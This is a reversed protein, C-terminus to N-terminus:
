GGVAGTLVRYAARACAFLLEAPGRKEGVALKQLRAAAPCAGAAGPHDDAPPHTLHPDERSRIRCLDRIGTVSGPLFARVLDEATPADDRGCVM